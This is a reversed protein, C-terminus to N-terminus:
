DKLNKQKVVELKIKEQKIFWDSSLIIDSYEKCKELLVFRRDMKAAVKGVTGIGAFPDLVVDDKFSYYKIVKEALEDPFIAPHRKDHAPKIQWVNTKDYNEDIKSDSVLSKDHHNRINWDILRDTKKRYVLVYETIPVAKYQLPNRDAAFRRGRNTAWGAGEPKMWIIDDIFEFDNDCFIKHMDFPVAIRKSAQSRTTRRILVPSINMIFFRGEALVRHCSKIVSSMFSLYEEYSNYESYEPRANYYPPSTFILDVSEEPLKALLERCDGIGVTNQLESKSISKKSKKKYETGEFSKITKPKSSKNALVIGSYADIVIEGARSNQDLIAVRWVHYRDDIEPLGLNKEIQHLELWKRAISKAEETNKVSYNRSESVTM